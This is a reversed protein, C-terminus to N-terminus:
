APASAGLSERLWSSTFKPAHDVVLVDPIGDGSRLAMELIIQAAEASTAKSRTPVAHVKRSLYIM